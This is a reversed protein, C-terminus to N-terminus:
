NKCVWWFRNNQDIHQLSIRRHAALRYNCVFMLQRRLSSSFCRTVLLKCHLWIRDNKVWVCSSLRKVVKLPGTAWVDRWGIISSSHKSSNSGGWITREFARGLQFDHWSITKEEGRTTHILRQLFLKEKISPGKIWSAWESGGGYLFLLNKKTTCTRRRLFAPFSRSSPATPRRIKDTAACRVTTKWALWKDDLARLPTM